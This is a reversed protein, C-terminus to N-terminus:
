PSASFYMGGFFFFFFLFFFGGDNGAMASRERQLINRTPPLQWENLGNDVCDWALLATRPRFVYTIVLLVM